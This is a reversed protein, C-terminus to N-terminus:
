EGVFTGDPAKIFDDSFPKFRSSSETPWVTAMVRLNAGQRSDRFADTEIQYRARDRGVVDHVDVERYRDRLDQYSTVRLREIWEILLRRAEDPPPSRRFRLKRM